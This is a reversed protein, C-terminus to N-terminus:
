CLAVFRPPLRTSECIPHTEDCQRFVSTLWRPCQFFLLRLTRGQGTQKQLHLLRESDQSTECARRWACAEPPSQVLESRPANDPQPRRPRRLEPPPERVLADPLAASRPRLWASPLQKGHADDPASFEHQFLATHRAHQQLPRGHRTLPLTLVTSNSTPSDRRSWRCGALCTLPLSPSEPVSPSRHQRRQLHHPPLLRNRALGRRRQLLPVYNHVPFAHLALILSPWPRVPLRCQHPRTPVAARGQPKPSWPRLRRSPRESSSCCGDTSTGSCRAHARCASPAKPPYQINHHLPPCNPSLGPTATEARSHLDKSGNLVRANVAAGGRRALSRSRGWGM